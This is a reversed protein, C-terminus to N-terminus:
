DFKLKLGDYALHVNEPLEKELDGHLGIKHSMHTFYAKPVNLEQVLEIAQPLTFHSIHPERQLANIVVVKSGRIKEMEVESIYNADTIYTFDGVRFGLVPLRHHMVQIPTFTVGEIEFPESDIKNLQLRPVGPYVNEGFAYYFENQIHNLVEQRGYLPMDKKQLYNYARVDDLGATHDKHQHTYVVADLQRVNERLMQQRFDPGTDIVFSKGSTEILVSVRLRKDRYDLSRCVPCDCAIVPVGQSTGTGLFTVNM